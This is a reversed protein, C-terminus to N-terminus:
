KQGFLKALPAIIKELDGIAGNLSDVDIANVQTMADAIGAEGQLILDNVNGMMGDVDVAAINNTIVQVDDMIAYVEEMESNVSGVVTDVQGILANVDEAMSGVQGILGNVNDLVPNIKSGAVCCVIILVIVAVAGIITGILSFKNQKNLCELEKANTEKIEKLLALVEKLDAEYNTGEVKKNEEMAKEKGRGKNNKVESDIASNEGM